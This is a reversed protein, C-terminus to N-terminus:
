KRREGQLTLGSLADLTHFDKNELVNVLEVISRLVHLEDAYIGATLVGLSRNATQALLGAEAIRRVAEGGVAVAKIGIM